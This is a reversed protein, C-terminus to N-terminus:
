MYSSPVEINMGSTTIMKRLNILAYRMRGLATNISVGTNAAIEKFSMDLYHRMIVVERQEMPLEDILRRIDVMIQEEIMKDEVNQERSATDSEIAINHDEISVSKRQKQHRYYDIIQNHAIRLVWSIFKGNDAYKGRKLSSSVKIYVEQFIDDAVMENKVVLHIYNFIKSKYQTFLEAIASDDGNMYAKILVSDKNDVAISM